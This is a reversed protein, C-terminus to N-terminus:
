SHSSHTSYYLGTLVGYFFEMSSSWLLFEITLGYPLAGYFEMSLAIDKTLCMTIVGLGYFKM